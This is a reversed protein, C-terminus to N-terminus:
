FIRPKLLPHKKNIDIKSVEFVDNFATKTKSEKTKGVLEYKGKEFKLVAPLPGGDPTFQSYMHWGADIKGELILNYETESIKEVRSNWKVPDLIQAQTNLVTFFLLVAIIKTSM